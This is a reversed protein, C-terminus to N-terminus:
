IDIVIPKEMSKDGLHEYDIKPGMDLDKFQMM